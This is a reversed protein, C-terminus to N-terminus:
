TRNFVPNINFFISVEKIVIKLRIVILYKLDARLVALLADKTKTLAQSFSKTTPNV